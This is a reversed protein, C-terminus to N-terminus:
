IKSLINSLIRFIYVLYRNFLAFVDENDLRELTATIGLLFGPHFYEIIYKYCSAASHYCESKHM